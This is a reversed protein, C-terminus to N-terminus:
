LWIHCKCGKTKAQSEPVELIYITSISYWIKSVGHGCFFFSVYAYANDGDMHRRICFFILGQNIPCFCSNRMRQDEAVCM